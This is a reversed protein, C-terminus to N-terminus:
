GKAALAGDKELAVVGTRVLERIGYPKVLEILRDLRDPTGTLQLTLTTASLEAVEAGVIGALETVEGRTKAGAGVKVLM